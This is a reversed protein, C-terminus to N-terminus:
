IAIRSAQVATVAITLFIDDITAGRSLDNAPKKLGQLIPGISAIGAAQQVAKYTINGSELNPFILVTADGMVKEDKPLKRRAIDPSVAADYQIPGTIPLNPRRSRAIAAAKGVKEAGGGLASDATAYSLFAVKPIIGFAAATDASQLAIEALCNSDPALNLACDAFVKAGDDFCMFFLASVVGEGGEKGVIQLAARLVEASTTAAGAVMGDADGSETMLAAAICPSRLMKKAASESLGKHARLAMLRPLYRAASDLPFFEMDSPLEIGNKKARARSDSEDGLLICQAINERTAKAAAALIREDAAEPLVIRRREEERARALVARCFNNMPNFVTLSATAPIKERGCLRRNFEAKGHFM